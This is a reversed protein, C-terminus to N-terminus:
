FSVGAGMKSSSAGAVVAKPFSCIFTTGKGPTSEVEVKGGNKEVFERCLILGLGTGKENATGKTTHKSDVRFLKSIVEPTMGVGNDAVFIKICSADTTIGMRISGGQGTFKIANSVLNRVVTNISNKHLRVILDGPTELAINIQKNMAQGKLLEQNNALLATLSFTEQTFDIAGTQSRSWELLNELLALLNKVSKDLDSALLQIEEKTMSDTHDILLRSFSTLSNLPGKLDHSIISFFKDKTHNLAQLMENQQQVEKRAARLRRNARQKVLFLVLLLGATMFVLIVVLFLINRFKKQAAIERDREQRLLNLRQIESEKKEVLYRNQTELLQREQKEGQILEQIAVGLEKYELASRYDGVEKYAQSLLDYSRLMQERAQSERGQELALLGNRIAKEHDGSKLYFAGINNHSEAVGKKDGLRQRIELAVEHNAQSKEDNRMLGYLVGIDNLSTAEAHKDKLARSVSLAKRHYELADNFKGQLTYLHALNFLAEAEFTRAIDNRYGLVQQYNALAEDLMGRSANVKGLKNLILAHADISREDRNLGWAQELFQASKYYDGVVEFVQAIAVYTLVQQDDLGLSDNIAVAQILFDLAREYDHVGHLHLLGLSRLLRAEEKADHIERAQELLLGTETLSKELPLNRPEALFGQLEAVEAEDQALLLRPSLILILAVLLSRKFTM